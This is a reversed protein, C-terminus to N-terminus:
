NCSGDPKKVRVHFHGEHGSVTRMFTGYWPNYSFLSEFYPNVVNQVATDNFIIGCVEGTDVFLKALDIAPQIDACAVETACTVVIDVHTGDKHTEHNSSSCAAAYNLDLVKIPAYEPRLTKWHVAVTYIVDILRQTGRACVGAKHTYLGSPDADPLSFYGGDVDSPDFNPPSLLEGIPPVCDTDVTFTYTADTPLATAFGGDVVQWGTLFVALQTDSQALVRVKALAGDRGSNIATVTITADVLGVEGDYLTIGDSDHIIVAPQWAGAKRALLLEVAVGARAFVSVQHVNYLGTGYNEDFSAM